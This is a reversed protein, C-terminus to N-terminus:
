SYCMEDLSSYSVSSVGLTKVLTSKIQVENTLIYTQIWKRLFQREYM